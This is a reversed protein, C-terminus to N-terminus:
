QEAWWAMIQSNIVPSNALAVHSIKSFIKINEPEYKGSRNQVMGQDKASFQTVMADGFIKAALHDTNEWLSGVIVYYTASELLPVQAAPKPIISDQNTEQWDSDLLYGYRLDKIGDSRSEIVKAIAKTWPNFIKNLTFTTINAIKELPAGKSPCGIMFIKHTLSPWLSKSKEGYYCASRAVLGGMSHCILNLSEIQVPWSTILKDLLSRLEQGNTSIHQGSNYRLYLVSVDGSSKISTGYDMSRDDSFSWFHDNAMIGHILICVRKHPSEILTALNDLDLDCSKHRLRLGMPTALHSGSEKLRDGFFGNFVALTDEKAKPIAKLLKQFSTQVLTDDDRGQDDKDKM